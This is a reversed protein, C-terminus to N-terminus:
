NMILGAAFGLWSAGFMILLFGIIIMIGQKRRYKRMPNVHVKGTEEEYVILTQRGEVWGEAEEAPYHNTIRLNRFDKTFVFTVDTTNGHKKISVMEATTYFGPMREADEKKQVLFTAAIVLIGAIIFCVAVFYHINLM